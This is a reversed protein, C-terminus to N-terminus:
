DGCSEMSAPLDEMGDCSTLFQWLHMSELPRRIKDSVSVVCVKGGQNKTSTYLSAIIGIGTSNILTVNKMMLVVNPYGEQIRDRAEELFTFCVPSGILKGKLEYICAQRSDDSQHEVRLVPRRDM